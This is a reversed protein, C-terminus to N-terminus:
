APADARRHQLRGARGSAGTGASAAGGDEHISGADSVADRHQRVAEPTPKWEIVPKGDVMTLEADMVMLWLLRRGKQFDNHYKVPVGCRHVVLASASLEALADEKVQKIETAM